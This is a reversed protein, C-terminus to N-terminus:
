PCQEFGACSDSLAVGAKEMAATPQEQFLSLENLRVKVVSADVKDGTFKYALKFTYM